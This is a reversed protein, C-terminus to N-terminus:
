VVPVASLDWGFWGLRSFVFIVVAWPGAVSATMTDLAGTM